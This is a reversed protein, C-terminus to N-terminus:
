GKYVKVKAFRIVKGDRFKWGNLIVEAITDKEGGEKAEIVEHVLHDFKEGVKPTIEELGEEAFIKKFEGIAIALGQDELHKLAAELNDLVPLLSVLIRESAFKIWIEHELETRKRLNDYDALARALQNKTEEVEGKPMQRSKLKVQDKM